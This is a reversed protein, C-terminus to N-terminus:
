MLPRMSQSVEASEAESPSPNWTAPNQAAKQPASTTLMTLVTSDSSTLSAQDWESMEYSSEDPTSPPGATKAPIGAFYRADLKSPPPSGRQKWQTIAPQVSATM